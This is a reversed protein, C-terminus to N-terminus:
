AAARESRRLQRLQRFSILRRSGEDWLSLSVTRFSELLGLRSVERLEPHDKLVRTLRYYPIRSNVHHVHHVGINATMWRLPEPLDYHSSGHLAAHTHDWEGERAWYSGEFQHQVYFLWVGISAALLITPLHILLLGKWGGLLIVATILVAITLNTGMASLWPKWGEKMLGMPMRQEIVFVWAPGIVFLVLPNRYLRYGIRKLLPLARYEAVTLTAIDGLGRRDLDGSTAHHIAHSRRWCHYPTMTLVGILRGTWNNAAPSRFFSQHSCDHQVMFLRVLFAAAPISLLLALWWLGFVSAVWAATWIAALPAASLVIELISRAHSPRQYAALIKRWRRPESPNTTM